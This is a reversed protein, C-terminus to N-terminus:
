RRDLVRRVRLWYEVTSPERAGDPGGNHTRAIVEADAARWAAPVHRRMYAEVVDEAYGRRRCDEYSGGLSRDFALADTWYARQIQFPGISRGDDGDPCDDRGGSEVVRIADLIRQQRPPTAGTLGLVILSLAVTRM